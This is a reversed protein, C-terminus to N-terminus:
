AKEGKPIKEYAAKVDERAKITDLWAKIKPYSDIPVKAMDWFVMWAYFHADVASFGGPLVSKGGSKGLQGELVSFCRDSQELYRQKADANETPNYHMYFNRQGLMPGLGSVLFFVWKDFDVRDQESDGRPGLKNGKDYVRLLYAICAGSEWSTVGTNPDELAPVRGNENIALFAPGKVGNDAPGFDWNKVTYPLSLSELVIAVKYPNPGTNHSHLLLPKLNSM